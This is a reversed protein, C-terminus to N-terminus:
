RCVADDLTVELPRVLPQRLVIPSATGFAPENLHLVITRSTGRPLELDMAFVPHGLEAGVSATGARGAITLGQLQTGQTALYSVILRNDGPKVPYSPKDPRGSVYHPLGRAPANNTLTITVTTQRTPGCGTRKWAVSRDLYYDLKNGGGNIVSLGVYPAKTVPVIGGVPTRALQREVAPDASWALIRRETAAKGAAEMLATPSKRSNIIQESAAYAVGLLYARRQGNETSSTGPFKAYSTSQTLAVANAGSIQSKDPLTAPGTVALLYGLATPDVAIAGDVKQGSYKQWMSAWIQAAYPFHPSLNSNGYINTPGAAHYLARFDTGFNVNASINHLATDSEMRTFKLKGRNAEIIAFAGPLGGTGRAESENQFGLFYRKPGNQGLMAPLVRTAVDASRLADDVKTVRGLVDAYSADVSSLWTHRPLASIAATTQAVTASASRLTPSVATIRALDVSGDPRRLTRPNLRQGANVLQPLVDTGLTDVGETIGRITKLPEGGSPLAAGLAWVPGSTLQHARHAHAALDAATARAGSWNSAAIKAGMTSAQARVQNLESRAMIATVAIWAGALLLLGGAALMAFGVRRRRRGTDTVSIGSRDSGIIQTQETM